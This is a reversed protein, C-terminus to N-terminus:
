WLHIGLHMVGVATLTALVVGAILALAVLSGLALAIRARLSSKRKNQGHAVAPDTAAEVTYERLWAEAQEVRDLRPISLYRLLKAELRGRSVTDLILGCTFSLFALLMIASALIATPFRPVTHTQFFQIVIPVALVFSTIALVFGLLSFFFLPREQKFLDVITRLIRWGDRYTNLKSTSGEPRGGYNTKVDAIPMDLDLAHVTLETEIEFGSSLVPFSKVFRRSLVKYGSLMDSTRNGFLRLVMWTLLQNGTRHGRRYATDSTNEVRVGNVVDFLGALARAVMLPAMSADYTGDGDVLVYLDADIDRFMRRVVHGKGQRTETRVLAGVSRAIRATDDTSNNDYVYIRASPLARAFDQVVKGITLCENYCPIVVAIDCGAVADALAQQAAQQPEVIVTSDVPPIQPQSLNAERRTLRM